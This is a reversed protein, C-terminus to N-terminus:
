DALILPKICMAGPVMVKNETPHLKGTEGDIRFVFVDHSRQNSVILWQGTPDIIFSRPWNGRTLEHGVFTLLGTEPDIAYIVLSNHGRNSGYLFRGSPTIHIDACTNEGTFDSPLTPVSELEDFRGTDKHYHFGTITGNLENIVYMFQESPHFTLHRPGAGPATPLEPQEAPTLQGTTHDLRYVYVRETGLDPVLVLQDTPDMYIMHPHSHRQRSPHVSSGEHQIHAVGEGLSGNAQVRFVRVSGTDNSGSYNVSLVFKNAADTTVYCPSNGGTTIRNLHTLNGNTPDISFANITGGQDEPVNRVFETAYLFRGGPEVVMYQSSHLDSFTAIPELAGTNSDFRFLRLGDGEEIPPNTTYKENSSAIYFLTTNSDPMIKKDLSFHNV